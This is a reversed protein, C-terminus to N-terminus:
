IAVHLMASSYFIQYVIYIYLALLTEINNYTAIAVYIKVFKIKYSRIIDM